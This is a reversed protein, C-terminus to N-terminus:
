ATDNKNDGKNEIDIRKQYLNQFANAGSALGLFIGWISVQTSITMYTFVIMCWITMVNKFSTLKVIIREKTSLKESM